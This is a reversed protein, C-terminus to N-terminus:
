KLMVKDIMDSLKNIANTNDKLSNELVSQLFKEHKYSNYLSYVAVVIPFGLTSIAQIIIEGSM